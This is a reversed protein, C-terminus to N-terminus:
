NIPRLQYVAIIFLGTAAIAATTRVHNWVVWAALYDKWVQVSSPNSVDLGALTDNLPVNFMITVGFTGILYTASGALLFFIGPQSWHIFCYLVNAVCALASGLFILLFLPNVIATNIAQMTSIGNEPSMRALIKMMFNSFVFLLGAVMGSGLTSCLTLPFLLKEVM